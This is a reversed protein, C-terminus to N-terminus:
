LGTTTAPDIGPQGVVRTRKSKAEDQEPDDAPEAPDVRTAATAAAGDKIPLPEHQAIPDPSSTATAAATSGASASGAVPATAATAKLRAEIVGHAALDLAIRPDIDWGAITRPLPAETARRAPAPVVAAVAVALAPGAPSRTKGARAITQPHHDGSPHHARRRNGQARGFRPRCHNHSTPRRESSGRREPRGDRAPHM